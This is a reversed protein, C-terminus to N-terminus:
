LWDLHPLLMLKKGYQGCSCFRSVRVLAYCDACDFRGDSELLRIAVESKLLRIAGRKEALAM